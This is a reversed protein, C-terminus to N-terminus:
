SSNLQGSIFKAFEQAPDSNSQQGGRAGLGLDRRAPPKTGDDAPAVRDVWATIAKADPDGNVDLFKSADIGELLADVDVSRGAAAVRIAAEALKGGVERMAEAKAEARATAVAKEQETMSSQKFAELEKAAAANAKARDEHKRAEKLTEEYKAKWDEPTEQAPSPPPTEPPTTPPTEPATTTM